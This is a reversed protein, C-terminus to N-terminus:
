RRVESFERLVACVNRRMWIPNAAYRKSKALNSSVMHMWALLMLARGDVEDGGLACQTTTMTALASSTPNALWALVVPGLEQSSAEVETALLLSAVDVAVLGDREAQGWDVIGTVQEQGNVLVNDASYDGHTWGVVLQHGTLEATLTQALRDLGSKTRTPIAARVVKAPSSVHRDLLAQDARVPRATRRNLDAIAALAAATFRERRATDGLSARADSGSLRTELGYSIGASHGADLIRPLLERWGELRADDHLSNLVTVQREIMARGSQTDAAKLLAANEHDPGVIGIAGDSRGHLRRQVRWRGGTDRSLAALAAPAVRSLVGANRLDAFPGVIPRPLWDARVLMIVAAVFTQGSLLALGVGTIGLAPILLLSLATVITSISGLIAVVIGVRKHARAASVATSTIVNPLASLAALRLTESGIDAYGPGLMRMISPAAVVLVTVVPVLLALGRHVVDRCADELSDIDASVFVVLSQGMGAPVLYLSYAITWATAFAATASGGVESLVLVPLLLTCALWCTTGLFDGGLYGILARLPTHQAVTEATTAHAPIARGFLYGSTVVVTIATATMWSVAIDGTPLTTALGIILGLKLLSFVFNELPVVHPRRVATLVGDQMVFLAWAACAFAVVAKRDGLMTALEPSWLRTGVAFVLGVIGALGGGVLYATIVFRRVKRDAVPVFRVLANMLNLQAVGALFMIAYILASNRGVVDQDYARAAVIWFLFGIGSTLASSLVLAYGSRYL